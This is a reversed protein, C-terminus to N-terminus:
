QGFKELMRQRPKNGNRQTETVAEGECVTRVLWEKAYEFSRSPLKGSHYKVALIFTNKGWLQANGQLNLLCVINKV